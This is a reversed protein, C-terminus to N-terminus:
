TRPPPPPRLANPLYDMASTRSFMRNIHWIELDMFNNLYVNERIFVEERCLGDSVHIKWLFLDYMKLFWVIFSFDVKFGLELKAYKWRLSYPDWYSYTRPVGTKDYSTVSRASRRVLGHVGLDRTKDPIPVIFIGEQEYVRLESCLGLIYVARWRCCHRGQVSSINKFPIILLIYLWDILWSSQRIYRITNILM